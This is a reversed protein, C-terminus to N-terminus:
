FKCRESCEFIAPQVPPDFLQTAECDFAPFQFALRIILMCDHMYSTLKGYSECLQGRRGMQNASQRAGVEANGRAAEENGAHAVPSFEHQCGELKM